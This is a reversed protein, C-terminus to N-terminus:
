VTSIRWQIAWNEATIAMAVSQSATSFVTDTTSGFLLRQLRGKQSAGLVTMDYFETQEAITATTDDTEVIWTNVRKASGLRDIAAAVYQEARTQIRDPADDPIVHIIDIWADHESALVHGIDVALGTNSNDGVPVLISSISALSGMSNTVIAACPVSAAIREALTRRVVPFRKSTPSEELVVASISHETVANRITREIGRGLRVVGRIDLGPYKKTADAVIEDVVVHHEVREERTLELPRQSPISVPRVIMLGTGNARALTMGISLSQQVKEQDLVPVLIAGTTSPAFTKVESPTVAWPQGLLGREMRESQVLAVYIVQSLKQDAFILDSFEADSYVGGHGSM